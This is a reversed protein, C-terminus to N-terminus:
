FWFALRRRFLAFVTFAVAGFAVTMGLVVMWSHVPIVGDIIPARFIDIFYTFPNWWLWGQLDGVQEPTWILPTLFFLVRMLTQVLQSVDRYRMCIVGLLMHAFVANVLYIGFAPLAMLAVPEIPHRVALLVVIAVIASYFFVLCDRAISEYIFVSVPLRLGLLWNESNIFATCSDVVVSNMFQWALFGVTVYVAFWEIPSAILQGFIAVKAAVFVAYSITLWALGFLTRRFRQRMDDHALAVWLERRAFGELLDRWAAAFLGGTGIRRTATRMPEAPAAKTGAMSDSDDLSM